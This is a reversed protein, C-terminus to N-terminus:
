RPPSCSTTPRCCARGASPSSIRSPSIARSKWGTGAAVPVGLPGEPRPDGGRLRPRAEARPHPHRRPALDTRRTARASGPKSPPPGGAKRHAPGALGSGACRRPRDLCQGRRDGGAGRHGVTGRRRGRAAERQCPRRACTTRRFGKTTPTSPSSVADVAKLVMTTSRFSLTLPVDEFTIGAARSEGIWASRTVAFERPDAGQFGYISQKPDGVAFRTRNTERAGDGAAFEQHHARLIAWQEPNTDQAEDVLVHDIGRTSSTSCGAPGVRSLLDLARRILDDFDLAGLRAKQAEVRRHIEAALTFLAETRAHAHTARLRRLPRRPSGTGRDASGERTGPGVEHRPEERGEARGEAHLLDGQPM